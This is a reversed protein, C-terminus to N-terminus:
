HGAAAAGLMLGLAFGGFAAADNDHHPQYGYGYAGYGGMPPLPTPAPAAYGPYVRCKVKGTGVVNGNRDTFLKQICEAKAPTGGNILAAFVFAVLALSIRRM